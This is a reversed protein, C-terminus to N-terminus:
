PPMRPSSVKIAFTMLLFRKLNEFCSSLSMRTDSKSM